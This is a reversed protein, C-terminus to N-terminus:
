DGYSGDNDRFGHSKNFARRHARDRMIARGKKTYETPVGRKAAEQMAEQVQDPHVGAAASELPWGTAQTFAPGESIDKAPFAADFEEKTVEADDVFYRTFKGYVIRGRAM